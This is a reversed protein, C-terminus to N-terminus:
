RETPPINSICTSVAAPTKARPGRPLLGHQGEFERLWKTGDIGRSEDTDIDVVFLGSQAGTRVGIMAEPHKNWWRKIRELDTSADKFGKPTLPTKNTGCPFLLWSLSIYLALAQLLRATRDLAVSM